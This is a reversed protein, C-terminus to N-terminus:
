AQRRLLATMVGMGILAIGGFRTLLTIVGPKRSTQRWRNALVAYAFANVAALAVFVAILIAFQPLLLREVSVFQPVFVISKPAHWFVCCSGTVGGRRPWWRRLDVQHPAACWRSALISSYIAGVWKLLTFLTASSLVVAGLGVLSPSMAVFDGLAVGAASAISMRKGRSLAYSLVLLVTLGPILM